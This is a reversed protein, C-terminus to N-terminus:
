RDGREVSKEQGLLQTLRAAERDQSFEREIKERAVQCLTRRSSSLAFCARLAGALAVPNGPEALFGTQCDSILEPIGAIRCSVVPVGLAMAEMLSVPIGDTDGDPTRKCALVFVDAAHLEERVKSQPLPGVLEVLDKVGFEEIRRSLVERLSGDGVIRCCVPQGQDKLIACAEILVDHGKMEELAGVSLLRPPNHISEVPSFEWQELPIGCHIVHIKSAFDPGGQEILRQRDYESISAIFRAERLKTRLASTRFSTHSSFSFGVGLLRACALATSASGGSFNAHVHVCRGLRRLRAAMVAGRWVHLWPRIRPMFGPADPDEFGLTFWNAMTRRPHRLLAFVNAAISGFSLPNAPLYHTAALHSVAEDEGKLEATDAARMSVVEIPLGQARLAEIERRIFTTRLSPFQQVAYAIFCPLSICQEEDPRSRGVTFPMQINRGNSRDCASLENYVGGIVPLHLKEDLERRAVELKGVPPIRKTHNWSAVFDNKSQQPRKRIHSLLVPM